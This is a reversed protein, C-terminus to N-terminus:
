HLSRAADAGKPTVRLGGGKNAVVWGRIAAKALGVLCDDEKLGAEEFWDIMSQVDIEDNPACRNSLLVRLVKLAEDQM